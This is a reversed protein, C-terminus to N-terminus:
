TGGGTVKQPWLIFFGDGWLIDHEYDTPEFPGSAVDSGATIGQDINGKHGTSGVAMVTDETFIDAAQFYLMDNKWGDRDPVKQIYRTALFANIDDADATESPVKYKSPTAARGAASAQLEDTLWAMRATGVNRADAVTRKQKANQLTDHFNPNLLAAIIGNNAVVNLQEILTFGKERKRLRTLM